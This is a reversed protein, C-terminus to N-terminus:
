ELRYILAGPDFAVREGAAFSRTIPQDSANVLNGYDWLNGATAADFLGFGVIGNWAVTISAAFLVEVNNSIEDDSGSSVATTGAGQTGSWNALSSALAIRGYGAAALETGAVGRSAPLATFLGVHVTAPYAIAQARLRADILRNLHYQTLM